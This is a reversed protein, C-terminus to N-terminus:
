RVNWVSFDEELYFEECFIYLYPSTSVQPTWWYTNSAFRLFFFETLYLGCVYIGLYCAFICM